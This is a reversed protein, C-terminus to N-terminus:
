RPTAKATGKRDSRTKGAARAASDPAPGPGAEAEADPEGADDGAPGPTFEAAAPEPGVEDQPAPKARAAKTKRARGPGPTSGPAQGAPQEPAPMGAEPAVREDAEPVQTVETGAAGAM